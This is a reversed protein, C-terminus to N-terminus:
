SSKKTTAIQKEDVTWVYATPLGNTSTSNTFIVRNEQGEVYDISFDVKPLLQWFEGDNCANFLLAAISLSLLPKNMMIM